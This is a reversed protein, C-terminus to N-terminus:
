GPPGAGPGPLRALGCLAALDPLLDDILWDIRDGSLGARAEFDVGELVIVAGPPVELGLEEALVDGIPLGPLLPHDERLLRPPRSSGEVVLSVAHIPLLTCLRQAVRSGASRPHARIAGGWIQELIGDEPM